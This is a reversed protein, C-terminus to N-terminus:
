KSPTVARMTIRPLEAKIRQVARVGVNLNAAIKRIGATRKRLAKRIATETAGDIKLRGLTKGHARSPPRGHSARPDRRM